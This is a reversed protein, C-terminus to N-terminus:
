GVRFRLPEGAILRRCNDAAVALSRALTEGTLWAVHPALVVNPLATLGHPRPLPEDSFVDLGAGALHGSALADLLASEDVLGGRATNILISGPRMCAFAARDLVRTTTPTLPLHLSVIDAAALVAPLSGWEAVVDGKPARSTYLVRAGLALLVPALLRPVAGYGILGVTRGGIEGLHGQRDPDWSWGTGSRVDQDFRPLQRLVALMLALAHEAVARSNTGPMNCVAIGREGARALDITNVGVGIKQVLRLKPAADLVRADVPRLCHWLVDTDPLLTFLRADDSEPCVVVDLGQDALAAFARRLAPAADYNWIVRLRTM